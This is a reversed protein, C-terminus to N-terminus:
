RPALASNWRPWFCGVVFLAAASICLMIVGISATRHSFIFTKRANEGTRWKCDEEEVAKDLGVEAVQGHVVNALDELDQQV